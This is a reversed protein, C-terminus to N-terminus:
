FKQTQNLLAKSFPFHYFRIVVLEDCVELVLSSLYYSLTKCAPLVELFFVQTRVGNDM